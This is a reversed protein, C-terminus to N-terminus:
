TSLIVYALALHQYHASIMLLSIFNGSDDLLLKPGDFLSSLHVHLDRAYFLSKKEETSCHFSCSSTWRGKAATVRDVDDVEMVASNSSQNEGTHMGQGHCEREQEVTQM